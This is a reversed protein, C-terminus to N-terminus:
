STKLKAATPLPLSRKKPECEDRFLFIGFAGLLLVILFIDIHLIAVAVFALPALAAARWTRVERGAISLSNGAAIGAAALALGRFISEFAELRGSALYLASAILMLMAGPGYIAALAGAAGPAGGLRRGVLVTLNGGVAGPLVHAISIDELLQDETIWGRKDCLERQFYANLSQGFSAAGIVLLVRITQALSPRQTEPAAATM